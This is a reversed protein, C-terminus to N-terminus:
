ALIVDRRIPSQSGPLGRRQAQDRAAGRALRLAPNGAYRFSNFGTPQGSSCLKVIGNDVMVSM